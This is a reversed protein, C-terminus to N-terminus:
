LIKKWEKWIKSKSYNQSDKYSNESLFERRSEELILNEIEECAKSLNNDEILIGDINHNLLERPGVPCDFAVIPLGYSKAELLVMPFAEQFSSMFLFGANKYIIDKDLEIGKLIIKTDLGLNKIKNEIAMKKSGDGYIEVIWDSNKKLVNNLIEIARDYGKEKELRGVMIIRKSKIKYNYKPFIDIFNKIVHIKNKNIYKKFLQFDTKTLVVINDLRKYLFRRLFRIFYPPSYYQAHETGIKYFNRFFKFSLYFNLFYDTGILTIESNKIEKIISKIKLYNKIKFIFRRIKNNNQSKENLFIIEIKQNIEYQLEKNKKFLSIIKVEEGKSIFLNGLNSVVREIGGCISIDNVLLIIM